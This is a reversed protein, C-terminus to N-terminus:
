AAPAGTQEESTEQAEEKEEEEKEKKKEEEIEVKALRNRLPLICAARNWDWAHEPNEKKSVYIDVSDFERGTRKVIKVSNANHFYITGTEVPM